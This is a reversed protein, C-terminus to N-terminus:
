ICDITTQGAYITHRLVGTLFLTADNRICGEKYFVWTKM